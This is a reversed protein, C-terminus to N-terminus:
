EPLTSPASSPDEYVQATVNQAATPVVAHLAIGFLGFPGKESQAIRFYGDEGWRTGWSNKVIWCPPSTSDDYGVLLVAHDACSSDNCACAEDETLIGSRYNSITQCNSRIVLAVPQREVAQKLRRVREDFSFEDYFDVVYEADTVQVSPAKGNVQCAETTSGQGDTYPYSGSSAVGGFDTGVAYQM